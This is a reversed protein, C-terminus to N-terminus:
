AGPETPTTPTTTVPQYVGTAANLRMKQELSEDGLRGTYAPYGDGSHNNANYAVPNLALTIEVADSGGMEIDDDISPLCRTFEVDTSSGDDCIGQVIVDLYDSGGCLNEAGGIIVNGNADTAGTYTAPNWNRLAKGLIRWTDALFTISATLTDFTGPIPTETTGLSSARSMKRPAFNFTMQTDQGLDDPELTFVDWGGAGNNLTKDWRRFVVRRLQALNTTAM